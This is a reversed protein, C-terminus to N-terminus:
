FSEVGTCPHFGNDAFFSIMETLKNVYNNALLEAMPLYDIWDDQTHSM